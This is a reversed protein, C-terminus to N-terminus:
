KQEARSVEKMLKQMLAMDGNSIRLPSDWDKLAKRLRKMVKMLEREAKSAM